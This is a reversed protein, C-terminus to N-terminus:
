EIKEAKKKLSKVLNQLIMCTRIASSLFRALIRNLFNVSPPPCLRPYESVFFPLMRWSLAVKSGQLVHLDEAPDQSKKSDFDHSPNRSTVRQTVLVQFNEEFCQGFVLRSRCVNIAQKSSLIDHFLKRFIRVTAFIM